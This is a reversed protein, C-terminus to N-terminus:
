SHWPHRQFRQHLLESPLSRGADQHAPQQLGGDLRPFQVMVQFLGAAPLVRALQEEGREEIDGAQRHQLDLGRHMRGKDGAALADGDGQLGEVALKGAGLRPDGPGQHAEAAGLEQGHLFMQGPAAQGQDRAPAGQHDIAIVEGAGLMAELHRTEGARRGQGALGQHDEVGVALQDGVHEGPLVGVALLAPDHRGHDIGGPRALQVDHVPVEAGGPVEQVPMVLPGGEQDAAVSRAQAGPRDPGGVLGPLFLSPLEALGAHLDELLAGAPAQQDALDGDVAGGLLPAVQHEQGRQGERDRGLAYGLEVPLAPLDLVGEPVQRDVQAALDVREAVGLRREQGEAQGQDGVVEPRYPPRRHGLGLSFFGGGFERGVVQGM